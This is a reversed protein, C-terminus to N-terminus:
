SEDNEDNSAVFLECQLIGSQSLLQCDEFPFPWPQFEMVSISQKPYEEHLDPSM